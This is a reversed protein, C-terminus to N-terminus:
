DTQDSVSVLQTGPELWIRLYAANVLREFEEGHRLGPCRLHIFEHILTRVWNRNTWTKYGAGPALVQIHKRYRNIQGVRDSRKREGGYRWDDVRYVMEVKYGKPLREGNFAARYIIRAADGINKKM